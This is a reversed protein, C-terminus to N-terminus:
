REQRGTSISEIWMGEKLVKMGWVNSVKLYYAGQPVELELADQAKLSRYSHLVRLSADLVAVDPYWKGAFPPEIRITQANEIRFWQAINSRELQVGEDSGILPTNWVANEANLTMKLVNQNSATSEIAVGEEKLNESFVDVSFARMGVATGSVEANGNELSVSHVDFKYGAANFSRQIAKLAVVPEGSFGIQTQIQSPQLAFAVVPFWLLTTFKKM